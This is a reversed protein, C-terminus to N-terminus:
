HRFHRAGTFVMAMDNDDACAICEDDRVSGGTQIIASIGVDAANQVGDKFPLFADSAMVAGTLDLGAAAAKQAAIRASNVRSMQGAGIGLTQGNKAYVIANSKVFKAVTWAFILDESNAPARKTVTTLDNASITLDDGDQVLFGGLIRKYDRQHPRTNPLILVRLNKKASLIARADDDIFPAIVVEAFQASIATAVKADLRCNFAIIGGFASETDCAFARAYADQASTGLAAGCPNAHKVIVCATGLPLLATALAHATDADNLNNFSLPKGQIQTAADFGTGDAYFAAAQHPNEGYRLDNIKHLNLTINQDFDHANDTKASDIKNNKALYDAIAGDYRATHAFAKQALYRRTDDDLNSALHYDSPDTFVAVSAHNKAAARIMAPGGIDINEIADDFTASQRAITQSFPYLNVVVVDIPRIGHESMVADDVGRRGLIGGHIVPHLTKVRGGMIEDFGTHESVATCPLGADQLTKFTGGTSLLTFGQNLLNKALCIIDTKDSVSLLAHRM